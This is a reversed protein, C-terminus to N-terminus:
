EGFNNLFLQELEKLLAQRAPGSAKLILEDGKKAQILMVSIMGKIPIEENGESLNIVQLKADHKKVTQIFLSAPRAHLGSANTVKVKLVSENDSEATVKPEQQPIEPSTPIEVEGLIQKQKASLANMAEDYVEQLSSGLSAQVGAAIAGEVFPAPCMLVKGATEEDLMQIAMETSLLASGLDMLVLCGDEQALESLAELIEVANTGIEANDDGIGAAVRIKVEESSVMQRMLDAAGQALQHSHSVLVINVM